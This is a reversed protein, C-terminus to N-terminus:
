NEASSADEREKRKEELWKNECKKWRWISFPYVAAALVALVVIDEGQSNMWWLFAVVLVPGAIVANKLKECDSKKM